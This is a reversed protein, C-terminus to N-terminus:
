ATKNTLEAPDVGYIRKACDPCVGHTFKAESHHTIYAELPQWVNNDDRIKKCSACIPLLGELINVEKATVRAEKAVRDVLYALLSLILVRIFANISSEVITWPINWITTYYLRVLPLAMSYVLGWWKGSYWSALVVPLVFLFPFQLFPGAMYDGILIVIALFAWLLILTKKSPPREATVVDSIKM